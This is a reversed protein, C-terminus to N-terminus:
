FSRKSTTLILYANDIKFIIMKESAYKAFRNDRNTAQRKM